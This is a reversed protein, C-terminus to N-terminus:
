RSSKKPKRICRERDDLTDSCEKEDNSKPIWEHGKFFKVLLDLRRIIEDPEVPKITEEM